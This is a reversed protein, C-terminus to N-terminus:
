RLGDKKCLLFVDGAADTVVVDNEMGMLFTEVVFTGFCLVEPMDLLLRVLDMGLSQQLLNVAEIGHHVRGIGGHCGFLEIGGEVEGIGTQWVGFVLTLANRGVLHDFMRHIDVASAEAAAGETGDGGM